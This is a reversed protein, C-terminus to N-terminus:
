NKGHAEGPIEEREEMDLEESGASEESMGVELAMDALEDEEAAILSAEEDLVKMLSKQDDAIGYSQQISAPVTAIEM